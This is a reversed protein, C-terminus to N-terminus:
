HPRMTTCLETKLIFYLGPITKWLSAVIKIWVRRLESMERAKGRETTVQSTTFHSVKVSQGCYSHWVLRELYITEM